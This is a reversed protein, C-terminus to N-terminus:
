DDSAEDLCALFRDADEEVADRRARRGGQDPCPSPPEVGFRRSVSDMAGM